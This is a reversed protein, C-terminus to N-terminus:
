SAPMPVPISPLSSNRTCCATRVTWPSPCPRKVWISKWNGTGRPLGEVAMVILNLMLKGDGERLEPVIPPLPWSLRVKGEGVYSQAISRLEAINTAQHGAYGYAMRYFKLRNIVQHASQDVLKLADLQMDDEPGLTGNSGDAEDLSDRILEIGNGVAGASGVLEHCLRSSLLEAVKLDITNSM